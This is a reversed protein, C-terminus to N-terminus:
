AWPMGNSNQAWKVPRWRLRLSRRLTVEEPRRGRKRNQQHYSARTLKSMYASGVEETMSTMREVDAREDAIGKAIPAPAIM